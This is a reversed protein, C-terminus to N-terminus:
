VELSKEQTTLQLNSLLLISGLSMYYIRGRSELFSLM